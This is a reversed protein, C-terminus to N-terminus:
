RVLVTGYGRFVLRIALGLQRLIPVAPPSTAHMYRIIFLLYAYSNVYRETTDVLELRKPWDSRMRGM